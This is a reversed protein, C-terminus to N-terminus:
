PKPEEKPQTFQRYVQNVFVSGAGLMVGLMVNQTTLGNMGSWSCAGFLALLVPIFKDDIQPIRKLMLGIVNLFAITLAEPSLSALQSLDINM